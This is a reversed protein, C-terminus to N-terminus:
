VLLKLRIVSWSRYLARSIIGLKYKLDPFMQIRYYYRHVYEKASFKMAMDNEISKITFDVFSKPLKANASCPLEKNFFKMLLFNTQNLIREAKFQKVLSEFVLFNVGSIPYDRIDVLWKLREWKHNSGHIMLFFLDFEPSLVTWKRGSFDIEILSDKIKNKLEVNSVPLNNLLKWHVELSMNLEKNFFTLHHFYRLIHKQHSKKQPWVTGHSFEFKNEFLIKITFDMMEEDILIDIDASLRVTADNYIRYSLLPGKLGVFSIGKEHLLDSLNIFNKVKVLQRMKEKVFEKNRNEGLWHDIQQHSLQHRYHLVERTYKM